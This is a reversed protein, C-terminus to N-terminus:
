TTMAYQMMYQMAYQMVDRTVPHAHAGESEEQRLAALAEPQTSRRAGTFGGATTGLGFARLSCNATDRTSATTAPSARATTRGPSAAHRMAHRLPAAQRPQM